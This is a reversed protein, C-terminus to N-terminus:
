RSFNFDTRFTKTFITHMVLLLHFQHSVDSIYYLFDAAPFRFFVPVRCLRM